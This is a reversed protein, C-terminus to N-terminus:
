ANNNQRIMKVTGFGMSVKGGIGIFNPLFVNSKFSLKYATFPMDKIKVAKTDGIEIIHSQIPKEVTWGIGKAMSLIHNTIKKELIQTREILSDTRKYAEFEKADTFAIWDKLTYTFFTDWVQLTYQQMDMKAISMTVTRGSIDIDWNSQAFYHHIENVGEGLCLLVPQRKYRKYQILPYSHRFGGNEKHNHFLVHDLGVKQAIAGRFAPIEYAEIEGNFLVKLYKIKNM